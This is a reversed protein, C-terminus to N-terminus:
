LFMIKESSGRYEQRLILIRVHHLFVYFTPIRFNKRVIERVSNALHLFDKLYFLINKRVVRKVAPGVVIRKGMLFFDGATLVTKADTARSFAVFGFRKSKKTDDLVVKAEIVEGFCGFYTGLSSATVQLFIRFINRKNSFDTM